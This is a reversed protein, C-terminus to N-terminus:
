KKIAAAFEAVKQLVNEVIEASNKKALYNKDIEKVIASGIVVGNAGIKSFEGAQAPESIGFGIVVPLESNNRIKQLNIKNDELNAQKTGTIGLMSVLYLFGSASASIKKIRKEDTLPAILDILDLSTASIHKTVEEREEFPLDVILVGDAGSKEIDAFIKDLGYKLFPNYYGMLLIPTPANIKRFEEVMLLTKKLSAGNQIARKSANEIIPGDGAPDLFPVGLEIIDCGSKPLNKLIELSTEYNPDGACIYSVFACKGQSKLEQFKKEIRKM